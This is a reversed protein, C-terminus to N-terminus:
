RAVKLLVDSQVPHQLKGPGYTESRHIQRRGKEDGEHRQKDLPEDTVRALEQLLDAVRYFPHPSQERGEVSPEIGTM